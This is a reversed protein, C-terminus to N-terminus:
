RGHIPRSVLGKRICVIGNSLQMTMRVQKSHCSPSRHGDRMRLKGHIMRLWTLGENCWVSCVVAVEKMNGSGCM